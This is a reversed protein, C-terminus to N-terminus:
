TDSQSSALQYFPKEQSLVVASDHASAIFSLICANPNEGHSIACLDCMDLIHSLPVLCLNNCKRLSAQMFGSVVAIGTGGAVELALEEPGFCEKVAKPIMGQRAFMRFIVDNLVTASDKEVTLIPEDKIESLKVSSKGALPHDSRMLLNMRSALLPHARLGTPIDPSRQVMLGVDITMDNLNKLLAPYNYKRISLNIDPYNQRYSTVIHEIVDYALFDLYGISLTGRNGAALERVRLTVEGVRQTITKAEALFFNGAATLRVSRTTREFLSVGLENELDSIRNSLTSPSVYLQKAAQTFSLCEAVNIFLTMTDLDIEIM